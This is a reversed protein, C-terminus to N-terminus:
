PQGAIGGQELDHDSGGQRDGQARGQQHGPTDRHERDGTGLQGTQDKEAGGQDDYGQPQETIPHPAQGPCALVPDGVDAGKHVLHQVADAGYLGEAVLRHVVAAM